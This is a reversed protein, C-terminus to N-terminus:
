DTVLIESYYFTEKGNYGQIISQRNGKHNSTKNILDQM